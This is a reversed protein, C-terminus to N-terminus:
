PVELPGGKPSPILDRRSRHPYDARGPTARTAARVIHQPRWQTAILGQGHRLHRRRLLAQESGGQPQLRGPLHNRRVEVWRRLANVEFDAELATRPKRTGAAPRRVLRDMVAPAPAPLVQMEELMPGVDVGVHGPHAAAVAAFCGLDRGGPRALAAPKRLEDLRQHRRQTRLHRDLRHRTMEADTVIRDPTHQVVVDIGGPRLLVEALDGWIGCGRVYTNSKRTPVVPTQCSM